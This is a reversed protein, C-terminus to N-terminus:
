KIPANVEVGVAQCQEEQWTTLYFGEFQEAQKAWKHCEAEASRDMAKGGLWIGVATFSAVAAVIAITRVFTQM